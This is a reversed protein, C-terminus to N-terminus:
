DFGATLYRHALSFTINEPVKFPYLSIMVGPVNMKNMFANLSSIERECTKESEVMYTVNAIKLPRLGDAIVFDVEKKDMGYYLDYGNRKLHLYIINELIRGYDESRRKGIHIFSPDVAYIKKGYTAQKRLSPSYRTITNVLFVEEFLGIYEKITQDHKLGSM